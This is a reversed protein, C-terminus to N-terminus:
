KVALADLWVFVVSVGRGGEAEAGVLGPEAPLLAGVLVPAM